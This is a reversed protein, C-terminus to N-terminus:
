AAPSPEAIERAARVTARLGEILDVRPEWGLVRRARDYSVRLRAIDGERPASLLPRNRPEDLLNALLLYLDLLRTERDSGLNIVMGDAARPSLALLNARVVDSVYTYDRTMSGRGTDAVRAADEGELGIRQATSQQPLPAPAQGVDLHHAAGRPFARSRGDQVAVAGVPGVIAM